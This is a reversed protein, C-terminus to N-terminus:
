SSASPAPVPAPCPTSRDPRPRRPPPRDPTLHPFPTSRAVHLVGAFSIAWCAVGAAATAVTLAPAEGLLGIGIAVAVFPDVVTLCAVTVEPPGAAHARQTLWFGTLAAMGLGALTGLLAGSVGYATFEEGAARMLVSMLGYASGAGIASTLCRGRGLLGGLGRCCAVVLGVLLGASLQAAPTVPTTVTVHAALATFGGTGALIAALALATATPLRCRRKRLGWLVSVVVALVGLPQIVTVPALGLASIHLSAGAGMVALGALWRPRRVLARPPGTGVPPQHVAQHQLRAGTAYCCAGLAALIVALAVTV